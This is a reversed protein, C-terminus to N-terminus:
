EHVLALIDQHKAFKEACHEYEVGNQKCHYMTYHIMLKVGGFYIPTFSQEVDPVEELARLYFLLQDTHM